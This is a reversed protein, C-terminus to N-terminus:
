SWGVHANRPEPKKLRAHFAADRKDRNARLRQYPAAYLDGISPTDYLTLFRPADVGPDEDIRDYSACANFCIALRAPFMDAALWDRFEDHWCSDLACLLMLLGTGSVPIANVCAIRTSSEEM